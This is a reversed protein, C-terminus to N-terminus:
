SIGLEEKAAAEFAGLAALLDERLKRIAGPSGGDAVLQQVLHDIQEVRDFLTPRALMRARALSRIYPDLGLSSVEVLRGVTPGSLWISAATAIQTVAVMLDVYTALRDDLLRVESGRRQRAAEVQDAHARRAADGRGAFASIVAVTALCAMLAIGAGVLAMWVDPRTWDATAAAM